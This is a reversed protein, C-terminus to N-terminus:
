RKLHICAILIISVSDATAKQCLMARPDCIGNMETPCVAQLIYIYIM